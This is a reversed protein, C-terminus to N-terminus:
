SLREDVTAIAAEYSPVALIEDAQVPPKLKNGLRAAIRHATHGILSKAFGFSVVRRDARRAPGALHALIAGVQAPNRRLSDSYSRGLWGRVFADIFADDGMARFAAIYSDALHAEATEVPAILPDYARKAPAYEERHLALAGKRLLRASNSAGSKGFMSMPRGVVVYDDIVSCLAATIFSDPGASTFVEGARAAVADLSRRAVVGHYVIPLSSPGSRSGLVDLMAGRAKYTKDNAGSFTRDSGLAMGTLFVRGAISADPFNDWFYCARYPAAIAEVGDRALRRVTDLGSSLFADDDGIYSIYDGRCQAYGNNWNDSMSRPTIRSYILRVDDIAAVGTALEDGVSCDTVVVEFDDGSLRLLHRICPLATEARDRSPVVISLLPM